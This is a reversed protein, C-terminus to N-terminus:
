DDDTETWHRERPADEPRREPGPVMRRRRPPNFATPTAGGPDPADSMAAKIASAMTQDPPEFRASEIVYKFAVSGETSYDDRAKLSYVHSVGFGGSQVDSRDAKRPRWVSLVSDAVQKLAATGKLDSLQIIRNDRHKEDSSSHQRPHAVVCLHAQTAVAVEGFMKMMSELDGRENPGADVMFHLHDIMVFRVGLKRIAYVLTNRMPEIKISGYRNLMWIPLADLADLTADLTADDLTDPARCSWQRVWKNLQRRPGLEFACVLSPMGQAAMHLTWQSCFTSKGSATDGTVITVEGERVGGMVADLDTWGTSIGRPNTGRLYAKYSERIARVKVVEDGGAQVSAAVIAGVDLSKGLKQLAENADKVDSPWRGIRCRHPGLMDAVSKAGKRGTEDNDYIVVIDECEELAATAEASWAGEGTTPSAVNRWGACIVSLADIEGAVLILTKRPDIGGPAYLVSTGGELRRFARESPPVSRLKAMAMADADPRGDTWRTFAPIVLWGPGHDEEAAGPVRRRRSPPLGGVPTSAWGVRYMEAVELPIGRGRLYARATEAAPHHQLAHAWDEVRSSDTTARSLVAMRKAMAIEPSEGDSDQVQYLLGLKEKLSYEKGSAGCRYCHWVWTGSHVTCHDEKGCSPCSALVLEKGKRKFAIGNRGLFEEPNDRM